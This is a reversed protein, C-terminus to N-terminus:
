KPTDPVPTERRAEEVLKALNEEKALLKSDPAHNGEIKTLKEDDFQVTLLYQTIKGESGRRVSYIYDWQDDNFINPMLSNGLVFRVQSKTMGLKLKDVDDQSIIHGQQINVKYVGPIIGSCASLGTIATLILVFPLAFKM